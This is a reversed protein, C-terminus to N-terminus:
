RLWRLCSCGRLTCRLRGRRSGAQLLIWWIITAIILSLLTEEGAAGAVLEEPEVEGLGKDVVVEIAEMDTPLPRARWPLQFM